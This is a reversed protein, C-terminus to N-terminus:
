EGYQRSLRRIEERMREVVDEPGIIKVDDGLSIIWSLFQPSVHVEVSVRFHDADAPIMMVEKGFRDIIVGAMRNNVLLKVQQEEGRFMGFSKRAYDAMDLKKFHERGERDEKSMQIRLMKDVRYHRIQEADSDYGILYYNEDDWTLAWPSVQYLAGDKRYRKRIRQTSSFDLAWEFYQFTIQVGASVATHLTDINYYISENMTKVRDSVYVQRQLARAQPESALAEIKKILENSKKETIFRSCQIADVLLKLEPLEFDRSAIYYGGNPGRQLMVDLGFDQLAAIDSYISKREAEIGCRSLASLLEDMSLKHGEDTKQLLIKCLYLLKLKQNPNKAM